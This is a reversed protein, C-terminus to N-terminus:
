TVDPRNMLSKLLYFQKKTDPKVQYRWKEPMIPLAGYDWKKLGEDYVDPAALEVLHGFCWSVLYGNGELYGEKKADAGIVKAISAAVSPKEAIVLVHQM